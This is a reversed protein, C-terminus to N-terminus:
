SPPPAPHQPPAPAPHQAPAAAVAEGPSDVITLASHDFSAPPPGFVRRSANVVMRGFAHNGAAGIGAGIGFPAVKAILFAGHRRSHQTLFWHCLTKNLASVSSMPVLDSLLKGWHEGTRGAVKEVLMAGGDGLVVTMVLARRHDVDEVRVAHVEAVALTFFTTTELFFATECASLALALGTGAGPVAATGGLVAGAGTVVTLYQKELTAIIEAPNSTPRRRRLRQVYNAVAPHQIGVAKEVGSHVVAPLDTGVVRGGGMNLDGTM